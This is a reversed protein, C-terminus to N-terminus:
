RDFWYKPRRRYHAVAVIELEEDSVERYVIAYPFRGLLVRRSGNVLRWRKPADLIGAVKERVAALFELGLGERREAYWTAAENLEVEAAPHFRFRRVPV